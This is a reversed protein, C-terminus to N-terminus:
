IMKVYVKQRSFIRINEDLENLEKEIEIQRNKVKLTASTLPM